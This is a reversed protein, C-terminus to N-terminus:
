KIPHNLKIQFYHNLQGGFNSIIQLTKKTKQLLSVCYNRQKIYATKSTDTKKKLYLNRLRSRKMHAKTLSKNMFPMNNGRAYKKKCPAFIDLTNICIQLFKEFGNCNANINEAALKESLIQRFTDNCFIKYDRYNIIRPKLKEYTTKMVTVTMKHFDSLGSETVCSNQFSHPSNTLILDICSPYKSNKYCTPEKILSSLNYSECFAKMCSQNVDSNFGGIM